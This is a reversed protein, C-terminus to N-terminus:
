YQVQVDLLAWKCPLALLVEHCGLFPERLQVSLLAADFHNWSM